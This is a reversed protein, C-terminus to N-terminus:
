YLDPLNKLSISVTDQIDVTASTITLTVNPDSTSLTVSFFEVEEVADDSLISINVCQM